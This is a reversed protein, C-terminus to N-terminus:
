QLEGLFEEHTYPTTDPRDVVKLVRNEECWRYADRVWAADSLANHATGTEIHKLDSKKVGLLEMHQKLDMCFFPFGAPLDVMAGFLQCIVVWDYDAFYGWFEPKRDGVMARVFGILGDRIEERTWRDKPQIVLNPLVEARVFDNCRSENFESSEAYFGEGGCIAAISILEITKGDDIFETDVFIKVKERKMAGGGM